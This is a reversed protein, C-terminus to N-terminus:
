VEEEGPCIQREIKQSNKLVILIKKLKWKENKCKM